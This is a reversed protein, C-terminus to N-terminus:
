EPRVIFINAEAPVLYSGAAKRIDEATVSKIKGLYEEEFRTDGTLTYYFGVESSRGNTSEQSFIFHNTLMRKAKELEDSGV